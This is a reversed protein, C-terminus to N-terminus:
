RKWLWLWVALIVAAIANIAAVELVNERSFMRELTFPETATHSYLRALAIVTVCFLVVVFIRLKKM